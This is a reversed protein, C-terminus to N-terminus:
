DVQARDSILEALTKLTRGASEAVEVGMQHSAVMSELESRLIQIQQYALDREATVKTLQSELLSNRRILEKLQEADPNMSQLLARPIQIFQDSGTGRPQTFMEQVVAPRQVVRPKRSPIPDSPGRKWERQSENYWKKHYMNYLDALVVQSRLDTSLVGDQFGPDNKTINPFESRYSSALRCVDAVQDIARWTEDSLKWGTREAFVLLIAGYREIQPEIALFKSPKNRIKKVIGALGNEVESM